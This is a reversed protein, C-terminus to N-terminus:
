HLSIKVPRDKYIVTKAPAAKADIGVASAPNVWYIRFTKHGPVKENYRGKPASIELNGTTDRYKFEIKQFQGKEYDYTTGQDEYLTFQGDKGAYVYIDLTDALPGTHQRVPGTPLITGASVFVPMRGYPATAQIIQGGNFHKGNYFGYWQVGKPLYVAKTTVHPRTVPAILLGPGFMYADTIATAQQDEPFDMALGRMPTYNKFYTAAGVSYIYPMLRYRLQDYYLMSSYAPHGEPAINFMERAPAQGHSRFIPSFAGFQFWRTQLERWAEKLKPGPKQYKSEVAFGGIDMSWYPIGAMSFSIGTAIQRHMEQWTAGIDGSWTAAAYRQAGTFASRTLIFVRKNPDADRQGTYFTKDQALAYANFDIQPAGAYSPTMLEMRRDNTINDVIDPETADLWWADVGKSYIKEKVIDWFASGAAPNFADYFTSVYGMWDKRKEIVNQKYLWNNDWFQKFYKSGEYFKPWVSIMFRLDYDNHLQRIMGAPDPYRSRDFEQSGWDDKKWYYWDQVINDIPIQKQRFQKATALIEKQSNYHEKSQWFGYAWKPMIPAKGTLYRYGSILSDIKQGTLVYYDIQKGAESHFRIQRDQDKIQRKQRLAAFSSTGDPAWEVKIDYKKGSEMQLKFPVEAPNWAQRWWDVVPQHDLWVKVYGGFKLIFDYMATSQDSSVAGEWIVKSRTTMKFRGPLLASDKAFQYGISKERRSFMGAPHTTDTIYTATLAGPKGEVDFLKLDALTRYQEPHGYYTISSNNWLLAFHGTSVLFPNFVNSNYQIMELDKGRLDTYGLQNGGLGFLPSNQVNDFQQVINYYGSAAIEIPKFSRANGTERLLAHDNQDLYSIKGTILDVVAQLRGSKIELERGNKLTSVKYDINELPRAQIMLTPATIFNSDPKVIVHLISPTVFQLRLYQPPTGSQNLCIAIGNPIKKYPPTVSQARVGYCGLITLFLLGIQQLVPPKRSQRKNIRVIDRM